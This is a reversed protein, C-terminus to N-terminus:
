GAVPWDGLGHRWDDLADTAQEDARDQPDFGGLGGCEPCEITPEPCDAQGWLPHRLEGYGECRGCMIATM